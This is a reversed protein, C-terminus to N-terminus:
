SELWTRSHQYRWGTLAELDAELARITQRDGVAYALQLEREIGYLRDQAPRQATDISEHEISRGPVVRLAALAAAKSASAVRDSLERLAKSGILSETFSEAFGSVGRYPLHM